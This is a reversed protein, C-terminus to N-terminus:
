EWLRLFLRFLMQLPHGILRRTETDLPPTWGLSELVWHGLIYTWHGVFIGIAIFVIHQGWHLIPPLPDENENVDLVFNPNPNPNAVARRHRPPSPLFACDIRFMSFSPAGSFISASPLTSQTTSRTTSKLRGLSSVM